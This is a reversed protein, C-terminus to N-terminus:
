NLKMTLFTYKFVSLFSVYIMTFCCCSSEKINNDTMTQQSLKTLALVLGMLFADLATWYSASVRIFHDPSWSWGGASWCLTPLVFDQSKLCKCLKNIIAMNGFVFVDLFFTKHSTKVTQPIKFKNSQFLLFMNEEASKKNKEGRGDQCRAQGEVGPAAAAAAAFDYVPIRWCDGQSGPSLLTNEGRPDGLASGAALLASLPSKFLM